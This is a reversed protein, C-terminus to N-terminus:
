VHDELTHNYILIDDMFILVFKRMFSGFVSNMLCQFTALANTLDFPMVRFQFHGHHTKFTTKYEDQATMRIQHFRSNLDLKTFYKAGAIEDLFEDIVTIPFKNKITASNLKKYDVCFRWTGDKKKVLPVPAAFPSLSPIVIGSQFMNTVQREIEIKQQPSYRYPRYNIPMTNPLLSIAHDFTRSPPLATPSQFLDEFDLIVEQIPTPIGNMMYKEELAQSSSVPSMIVLAWV